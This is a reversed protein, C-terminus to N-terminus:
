DAACHAHERSSRRHMILASSGAHRTPAARRKQQEPRVVYVIDIDINVRYFQLSPAAHKTQANFGHQWLAHRWCEYYQVTIQQVQPVPPLNALLAQHADPPAFPALLRDQLFIAHWPCKNHNACANYCGAM